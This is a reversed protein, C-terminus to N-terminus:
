AVMCKPTARQGIWLHNRAFGQVPVAGNHLFVGKAADFFLTIVGWRVGSTRAVNSAGPNKSGQTRPDQGVRKGIWVAFPLAGVGYSILVWLLPIDLAPILLPQPLSM